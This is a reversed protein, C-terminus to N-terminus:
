NTPNPKIPPIKSNVDVIWIRRLVNAIAEPRYWAYGGAGWNTYSNKLRVAKVVGNPLIELDTIAFQHGIVSDYGDVDILVMRNLALADKIAEFVAGTTEPPHIGNFGQYNLLPAIFNKINFTQASDQYPGNINTYHIEVEGHRDFGYMRGFSETTHQVGDYWFPRPWEGVYDSMVTNFIRHVEEALKAESYFNPNRNRKTIIVNVEDTINSYIKQLDWKEMPIKPSWIDEPVLGYLEILKMAHYTEGGDLKFYMGQGNHNNSLIEGILHEFKRAVLYAASFEIKRSNYHRNLHTSELAGLFSFLFCERSYRQDLNRSDKNNFFRNTANPWYPSPKGWIGDEPTTEPPQSLSKKFNKHYFTICKNVPSGGSLFGNSLATSSILITMFPYLLVLTKITSM